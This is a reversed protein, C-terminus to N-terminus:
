QGAPDPLGVSHVHADAHRTVPKDTFGVHEGAAERERVDLGDTEDDGLGDTKDDLTSENLAEKQGVDLKLAVSEPVSFVTRADKVAPREGETNGEADGTANFDRKALALALTRAVDLWLADTKGHM